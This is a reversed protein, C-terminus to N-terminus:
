TMDICIIAFFLYMHTFRMHSSSSARFIVIILKQALLGWTYHVYVNSFTYTM